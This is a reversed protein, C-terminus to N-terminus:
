DERGPIRGNTLANPAAKEVLAPIVSGLEAPDWRSGKDVGHGAHWCEAVSNVGASVNFVRGTIARAEASALWVVLPAIDDPDAGTAGAPMLNATMRTLAAPAVANVTVGYRELERAAIVTLGAIGAKAAGYNGQGPNGYIGSSSTTNIIRADV